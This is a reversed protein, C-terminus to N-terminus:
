RLPETVMKAVTNSSVIMVGNQPENVAAFLAKPDSKAAEAIVTKPDTKIADAVIAEPKSTRRKYEGVAAAVIAPIATAIVNAIASKDAEPVLGHAVGWMAAAVGVYGLVTGIVSRLEPNM